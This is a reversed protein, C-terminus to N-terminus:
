EFRDEDTPSGADLFGQLIIAAAVKDVSRRRETADAGAEIMVREAEASSMREDWFTFPVPIVDGLADTRRRVEDAQPGEAGNLSLPLGIVVSGVDYEEVLRLLPGPDGYLAKADLVTLPMAVAGESDSVAVGVRVSGIDLCLYRVSV